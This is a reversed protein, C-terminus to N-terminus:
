YVTSLLHGTVGQKQKYEYMKVNKQLKITVIYIKPKQTKPMSNLKDTIDNTQQLLLTKGKRATFQGHTLVSM